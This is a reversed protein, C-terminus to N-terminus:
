KLNASMEFIPLLMAVAVFGVVAGMALILAPELFSLLMKWKLETERRFSHSLRAFTLDLQGSEEGAGVLEGVMAPFLPSAALASAFSRGQTVRQSVDRLEASLMSKGMAQRSTTLADSVTFGSRLLSAMLQSWRELLAGRLVDSLLPARFFIRAVRRRLEPSKRWFWIATGFAVLIAVAGYSQIAASGAIL